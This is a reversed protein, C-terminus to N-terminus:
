VHSSHLCLHAPLDALERPPFICKHAYMLQNYITSVYLIHTVYFKSIIIFYVISKITFEMKVWQTECFTQQNKFFEEIWLRGLICNIYLTIVM